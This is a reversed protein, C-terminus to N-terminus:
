RIPEVTRALVVPAHWKPIRFATGVVKVDKGELPKLDQGPAHIFGLNSNNGILAFDTARNKSTGVRMLMGSLGVETGESDKAIGLSILAADPKAAPKAAEPKEEPKVAPKVTEPKEEPKVAPKAAEPKEEPKVAPKVAEPKKEPKVAPKVAEPKEEPKVAPKVAEPSGDLKVYLSCVYVKLSEPPVIRVWGYARDDILKVADGKKLEGWVPFSGGKGAFMKVDKLAKGGVVYAESVYVPAREPLAVELWNNEKEALVRVSEGKKFRFRVPAKVSPERRANLIDATVVAEGAALASLACVALLSLVSKKMM